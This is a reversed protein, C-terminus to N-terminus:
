KYATEKLIALMEKNDIIDRYNIQNKLIGQAILVLAFTKDKNM